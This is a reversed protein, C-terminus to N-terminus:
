PLSALWELTAGVAAAPTNGHGAEVVLYKSQAGVPGGLLALVILAWFTLASKRM